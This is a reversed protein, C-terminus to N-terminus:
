ECIKNYSACHEVWSAYGVSALATVAAAGYRTQAKLYRKEFLYFDLLLAVGPAAHLCLDLSFPIRILDPAESSSTPGLEGPEPARLILHPFFILLTWYISSIVAALQM